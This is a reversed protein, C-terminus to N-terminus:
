RLSSAAEAPVEALVSRTAAAARLPGPFAPDTPSPWPHIKGVDMNILATVIAGSLAGGVGAVVGTQLPSLGAVPRGVGPLPDGPETLTVVVTVRTGGTDPARVVGRRSCSDGPAPVKVAAPTASFYTYVHMAQTPDKPVWVGGDYTMHSGPGPPLHRFDPRGMDVGGPPARYYTGREDEREAVYPGQELRMTWRVGGLGSNMDFNLPEALMFCMRQEPERLATPEIVTGCGAGFLVLLPLARRLTGAMPRTDPM